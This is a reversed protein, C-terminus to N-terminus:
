RRTRRPPPALGMAFAILLGGLIPMLAMGFLRVMEMDAASPAITGRSAWGIVAVAGEIQPDALAVTPLGALKAALAMIKGDLEAARDTLAKDRLASALEAVRQRCNPGVRGCEQDRAVTAAAVAQETTPAFRLSAREAKLRAADEILVARQQVAAGRGALADGIHTSAFGIATLATMVVAALYVALALGTLLFRRRAWLAAAVAPLLLTMADTVIGITGLVMAADSTRGFAWLFSANLYLGVAATVAGLMFAAAILVTPRTVTPTVARTVTPAADKIRSKRQRARYKRQRKANADAKPPRLSLINGSNDEAAQSM